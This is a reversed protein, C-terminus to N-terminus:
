SLNWKRHRAEIAERVQPAINPGLALSLAEAYFGAREAPLAADLADFAFGMIAPDETRIATIAFNVHLLRWARLPNSRELDAGLLPRVNEILGQMIGFIASLEQKTGAANSLLALANAVPEAVSVPVDHRMAWLAVGICLDAVVLTAENYGERRCDSELHALDTITAAVLEGANELPLTASGGYQRDIADLSRLEDRLRSMAPSTGQAIEPRLRQFQELLQRTAVQGDDGFRITQVTM